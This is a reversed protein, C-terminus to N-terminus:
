PLEIEQEHVVLADRDPHWPFLKYLLQVKATAAGDVVPFSAEFTDGSRIQEASSEGRFPTIDKIKKQQALAIEGTSTHEMVQLLLVRNHREGPFNHGAGDNKVRVILQDGDLTCEMTAASRVLAEDHGGLCLHSRGGPRGEV